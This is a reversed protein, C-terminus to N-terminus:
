YIVGGINTPKNWFVWSKSTKLGQIENLIVLELAYRLATGWGINLEQAIKEADIPIEANKIVDSVNNRLEKTM